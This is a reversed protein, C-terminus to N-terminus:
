VHSLCRYLRVWRRRVSSEEAKGKPKFPFLHKASFLNLLQQFKQPVSVSQLEKALVQNVKQWRERYAQAVKKTMKKKM